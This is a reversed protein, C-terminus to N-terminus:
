LPLVEGSKANVIVIVTKKADGDTKSATKSSADASDESDAVEHSPTEVPQEEFRYTGDWLSTAHYEVLALQAAKDLESNGTLPPKSVGASFWALIKKALEKKAASTQPNELAVIMADKTPTKIEIKNGHIDQTDFLM